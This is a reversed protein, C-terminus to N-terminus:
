CAYYSIITAFSENLWLDDWWKMTVMDGFWQHSIEHMLITCGKITESETWIEKRKVAFFSESYVICGASEMGAYRVTPCVVQDLKSFPFSTGFINEYFKITKSTIKHIFEPPPTHIKRTM